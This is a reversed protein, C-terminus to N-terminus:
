SPAHGGSPLRCLRIFSRNDVLNQPESFVGSTKRLAVVEMESIKKGGEIKLRLGLIM